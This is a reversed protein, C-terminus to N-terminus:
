PAINKVVEVVEKVRFEAVLENNMGEQICTSIGFLMNYCSITQSATFMGKFYDSVVRAMENEGEVWEENLGKLKKVTDKKKENTQRARQEWFLEERDVKLNLALKVEELEALTQDDSNASSMNALRMNLAISTRRKNSSIGGMENKLVKGLKELKTSVDTNAESFITVRSLEGVKKAFGMVGRMEIGGIGKIGVVFGNKSGYAGVDIVIPSDEFNSGMQRQRWDGKEIVVGDRGLVGNSVMRVMRRLGDAVWRSKGEQSRGSIVAVLNFERELSWTSENQSNLTFAYEQFYGNYAILSIIARCSAIESSSSDAVNDVKRVVAYSRVGASVANHLVHHHAPDLADNVSCPLISGLFSGSKKTRIQRLGWLSSIFLVLLAQPWLFIKTAESVLHIRIITGQESATAIYKGNSSLAIAALPSRHADIECHLQLEMVNYVLVAGKATSAPLALFCGELSPSFACLGKLNPVTDITDLMSLSNSDYIYTKEQLVVVLRKRNLRVALISTLFNMERLPAGTTTNFFCLRRPSLSPQEGAGVIALLSSSYLMEVIIFAGVARDYCLRGTNSDIIKFGDKTSIAFGSNDQNFSACLIPYPSSQNAM